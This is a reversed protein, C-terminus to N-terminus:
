LYTVPHSLTNILNSKEEPSLNPNLLRNMAKAATLLHEGRNDMIQSLSIGEYTFNVFNKTNLWIDIVSGLDDYLDPYDKLLLNIDAEQYGESILINKAKTKDVSYM